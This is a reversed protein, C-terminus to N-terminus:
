NVEHIKISVGYKKKATEQADAWRASFDGSYDHSLFDLANELYKAAAQEEAGSIEYHFPGLSEILVM